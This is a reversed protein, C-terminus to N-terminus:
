AVSSCGSTITAMRKFIATCLSEAAAGKLPSVSAARPEASFVLSRQLFPETLRSWTHCLHLTMWWFMSFQLSLWSFCRIDELLSSSDVYAPAQLRSSPNLHFGYGWSATVEQGKNEWIHLCCLSQLARPHELDAPSLTSPPGCRGGHRMLLVVLSARGAAGQAGLLPSGHGDVLRGCWNVLAGGGRGGGLTVAPLHTESWPGLYLSMFDLNLPASTDRM